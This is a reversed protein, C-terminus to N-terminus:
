EYKFVVELDLNEKLKIEGTVREFDGLSNGFLDKKNNLRLYVEFVESNKNFIEGSLKKSFSDFNENKEIKEFVSKQNTDNTILYSQLSKRLLISPENSNFNLTKNSKSIVSASYIAITLIVLIAVTAIVWTMTEAVQGKTQGLISSSTLFRQNKAKRIKNLM